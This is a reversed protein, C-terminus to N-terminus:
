FGKQKYIVGIASLFLGDYKRQEFPLYTAIHSAKQYFIMSSDFKNLGLYVGGLSANALSILFTDKVSKALSLLTFYKAMQKDTNGTNGYLNGM